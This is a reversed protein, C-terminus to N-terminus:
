RVPQGARDLRETALLQGEADRRYRIEVTGDPLPERYVSHRTLGAADLQHVAVLTEGALVEVRVPQGDREVLRYAPAPADAEVSPVPQPVKRSPDFGPLDKVQWHPAVMRETEVLLPELLARAFVREGNREVALDLRDGWRLNALRLRLHPLDPPKWGALDVIVDGAALGADEAASDPWVRKVAIKGSKEELKAGFAPYAEVGGDDEFVAVYDALGRSFLAPSFSSQQERGHGSGMPHGHPSEGPELAPAKVTCLTVISPEAIGRRRAEELIRRAIGLRYAVHGSGAIAVVTGDEPLADLISRAMVTDWLCQAAYMRDFWAPPLMAVTDGFYRAILYRHQPSGAAVVPGVVKRQAEDLAELGGRSVARPISRPVNLGVVRIGHERATEMVPRYYEWNYGGRDYWHSALLFDDGTLTGDTWRVLVEGDGRQFFEMGLVLPRGSSALAEMIRAQLLKQPLHTHEEGLLVVRARGMAAAVEDLTVIEGRRCDYLEGPRASGLRYALEPPGLPLMDTEAAMGWGATLVVLLGAFAYRRM